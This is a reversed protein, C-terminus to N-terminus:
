LVFIYTLFRFVALSVFLSSISVKLSFSISILIFFESESLFLILSAFLLSLSSSCCFSLRAFLFNGCAPSLFLIDIKIIAIAKSYVIQINTLYLFIFLFNITKNITNEKVFLM